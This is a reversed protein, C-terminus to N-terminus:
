NNVTMTLTEPLNGTNKIYITQTATDGPNLAAVNLASVNQTCNIDSYVGLNVTTIKGNLPVTPKASLVAATTLTLALATLALAVVATIPIKRLKNPSNMFM